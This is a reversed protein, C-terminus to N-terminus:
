IDALDRELFEPRFLDDHIRNLDARSCTLERGVAAVTHLQIKKSKGLISTELVMSNADFKGSFVEQILYEAGKARAKYIESISSVIEETKALLEPDLSVEAIAPIVAPYDRPAIIRSEAWNRFTQEHRRVGAEALQELLRRWVLPNDGLAVKFPNRWLNATLRAASADALFLDAFDDVLDRHEDGITSFISGPRLAFVPRLLESEASANATRSSPLIFVTGNPPLLCYHGPDELLVPIGLCEQDTGSTPRLRNALSSLDAVPLEDVELAYDGEPDAGGRPVAPKPWRPGEREKPVGADIKEAVELTRRELARERRESARLSADLWDKQFRALCITTKRGPPTMKLRRMSHAGFWGPVIVHEFPAALLADEVTVAQGATYTAKLAVSKAEAEDRSGVVVAFPVERRGPDSLIGENLLDPYSLGDSKIGTLISAVDKAAAEYQALMEAGRALNGARSRLSEDLPANPVPMRGADILLRRVGSRLSALMPDDNDDRFTANADALEDLLPLDVPIVKVDCAWHNSQRVLARALVDSTAFGRVSNAIPVVHHDEVLCLNRESIDIREALDVAGLVPVDSIEESKLLDLLRGSQKGGDTVVAWSSIGEPPDLLVDKATEADSCAFFLPHSALSGLLPEVAGSQTIWSAGFVSVFPQGRCNISHLHSEVRGRPAVLLVGTDAVQYGGSRSLFHLTDARVEKAWISVDAGKSLRVHPGPSPFMYKSAWDDLHLTGPGAVGLKIKEKGGIKSRGRYLVRLRKKHGASLFVPQGDPFREIEETRQDSDNGAMLGVSIAALTAYSSADRLVVKGGGCGFMQNCSGLVYQSYRDLVKGGVMLFPSSLYPWDALMQTLRPLALTHAEAVAYAWEVAYLDDLLGLLGKDDSVVDEVLGIYNLASRAADAGEGHGEAAEFLLDLKEDFNTLRALVAFAHITSKQLDIARLVAEKEFSTDKRGGTLYSELEGLEAASLCDRVWDGGLPLELWDLTQDLIWNLEALIGPSDAAKPTKQILM